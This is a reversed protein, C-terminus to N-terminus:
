KFAIKNIYFVTRLSKDQLSRNRLKQYGYILYYDGYWPKLRNNADQVVRDKAFKTELPTEERDGIDSSGNFTQSIIKGKNVYAFTLLNNNAVAIVHNQLSYTKLNNIPFDNNWIMNGNPDFGSFIVDYYEYGDFVQYTMPYPRGYFDYDMRSETKFYPKYLEVSFVTIDGNKTIQPNSIKYFVNVKKFDADANNSKTTRIEKGNVSYYTNDFKMFDYFAFKDQKGEKFHLYFFGASLAKSEYDTESGLDNWSPRRGALLDYTGIISLRSQTVSAFKFNRPIRLNDPYDVKLTSLSKGNSNFIYIYDTFFTVSNFYKVVVYFQKNAKNTYITEILAEEEKNLHVPIITGTTLDVFALDANRKEMQLGLCATNNLINFGVIESKYPISGSISTFHQEKKDFIVIEYIDYEKSVKDRNKFLFYVKGNARVSSNFELKSELPVSKLWEQKLSSNLLAFYWVRKGKENTENSEYFVLAGSEGIPEVHYSELDIDGALELRVPLLKQAKVTFTLFLLSTIWVIIWRKNM